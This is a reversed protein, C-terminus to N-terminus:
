RKALAQDLMIIQGSDPKVRKLMELIDTASKEEEIQETVFWQLCIAAANDGVKQALNYLKNILGTVKKEHELTKKFADLPSKYNAPPKGIAALEVTEGVDNLYGILKMAHGVEEKTQKRMWHACGPLNVGEFYQAMALYIYGSYIENKVQENFAKALSKNM